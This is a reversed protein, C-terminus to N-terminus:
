ALDGRDPMQWLEARGLGRVRIGGPLEGDYAHHHHGHVVWTAGMSRALDDIIGYGHRHCSPAEHTVLVDARQLELATVDAAWVADRHRLPVGGRWRRHHPLAEVYADRSAHVPPSPPRWVSGRFVGGLGAVRHGSGTLAVCGDLRAEDWSVVNDYSAADRVDHNGMIWHVRVDMSVVPALLERLPRDAEYDGLLVLDDGPRLRGDAAADLLPRWEGHPDGYIWTSSPM